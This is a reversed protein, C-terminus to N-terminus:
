HKNGEYFKEVWPRPDIGSIQWLTMDLGGPPDITRIVQNPIDGDMVQISLTPIVASYSGTASTQGQGGMVMPDATYWLEWYSPVYFNNTTLSNQGSFTAITTM